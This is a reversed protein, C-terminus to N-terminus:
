SFWALFYHRKFAHARRRNANPNSVGHIAFWTWIQGSFVRAVMDAVRELAQRISIPTQVTNVRPFRSNAPTRAEGLFEVCQYEEHGLMTFM